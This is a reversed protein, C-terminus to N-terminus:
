EEKRKGNPCYWYDGPMWSYYGDDCQCPCRSTPFELDFGNEYEGDIKPRHKCDKCRVLEGMNQYPALLEVKTECTEKDIYFSERAHADIEERDLVKIIVERSM